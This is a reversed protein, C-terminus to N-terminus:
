ESMCMQAGEEQLGLINLTYAQPDDPAETISLPEVSEVHPVFTWNILCLHMLAVLDRVRSMSMSLGQFRLFCDTYGKYIVVLKENRFLESSPINCSKPKLAIVM